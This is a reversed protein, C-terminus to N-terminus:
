EYKRVWQSLQAYSCGFLAATGKIDRNHDICYEEIKIQEELMIKLTEVYKLEIHSNYM